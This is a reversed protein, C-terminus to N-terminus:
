YNGCILPVFYHSEPDVLGEGNWHHYLNHSFLGAVCVGLLILSAIPLLRSCAQPVRIMGASWGSQTVYQIALFCTGAAYVCTLYYSMLLLNAFTRESGNFMFGYVIAIVGILIAILSWTKPKGSFDFQESFNYSHQHTEM